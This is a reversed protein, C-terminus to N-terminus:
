LGCHRALTRIHAPSTGCCGGVLTAGEDLWRTAIVAYREPGGGAGWGLPGGIPGANAYCGFPVGLPSLRRLYAGALDAAVCNVLVASAGANLAEAAANGLESPSLLRGDPGPTLAAWTELGTAVAAAVAFAAEGPHAFTECLLLDCGADALVAAFYRHQVWADPASLDPRYCDAIPAISGAVRGHGRALDVARRALREWDQGADGPRTRFTAATHITAGATAYDAHIASVVQPAERIARASWARGSLDVGRALLETGMAGDLLTIM